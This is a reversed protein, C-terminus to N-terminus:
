RLRKGVADVVEFSPNETQNYNNAISKATQSWASYCIRAPTTSHPLALRM